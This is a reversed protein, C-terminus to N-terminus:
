YFFYCHVRKHAIEAFQLVYGMVFCLVLACSFVFEVNVSM